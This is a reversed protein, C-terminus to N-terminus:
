VSTKGAEVVEYENAARALEDFEVIVTLPVGIALKATEAAMLKSAIAVM